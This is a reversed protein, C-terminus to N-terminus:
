WVPLNIIAQKLLDLDSERKFRHDADKVLLVQVDDGGLKAAVDTSFHWPVVDDAMGHLLRAPCTVQTLAEGDLVMHQRGEAILEYGIHWVEGEDAPEIRVGKQQWDTQEDKSLTEWFLKETFDAANAITVLGAVREKLAQALLLAVWAGTSSGVPVVPQGVLTAIDMAAQLAKGITFDVFDGESQGHCPYDLRVAGLGLEKALAMGSVCKSSEMDSHLGHLFMLVPKKVDGPVFDYAIQTRLTESQLRKPSLNDSM